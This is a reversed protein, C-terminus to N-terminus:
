HCEERKQAPMTLIDRLRHPSLNDQVLVRSNPSPLLQSVETVVLLSVCQLKNSIVVKRAM